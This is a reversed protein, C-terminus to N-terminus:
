GESIDADKPILGLEVAEDLSLADDSVKTELAGAEEWFGDLDAPEGDLSLDLTELDLDLAEVEEGEKVLSDLDILAPEEAEEEPEAEVAPATEEVADYAAAPEPEEEEAADSQSVPEAGIMEIIRNAASKGYRLVPGMEKQSGGPFIIAIFFDSGASMAYIDYWNGDYYHVATSPEDGLYSSIEATTTFNRALLVVLESFRPLDDVSGDKIQVNGLRSIFAIGRAGLDIRLRSLVRLVPGHDFTPIAGVPGEAKKLKEVQQEGYIALTVAEVFEETDIPKEFIRFIDMESIQTVVQDLAHGTILITRIHSQVKKVRQLLEVGNMGPLRYDAVIVDFERGMELLAEEGSPVDVVFIGHNSLELATRLVRAVERQDDVILVRSERELSM